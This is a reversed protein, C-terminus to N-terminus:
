PSFLVHENNKFSTYSVKKYINYMKVNIKSNTHFIVKFTEQLM